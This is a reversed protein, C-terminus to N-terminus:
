DPSINLSRVIIPSTVFYGLVPENGEKSKINSPPNQPPPSFLGGDNFLLNVLERMYDYAPQNLRYMELRVRDGKKFAFDNLTLGNKLLNTGFRDDFLLYDTRRNLLTDNRVMKIRYFNDEQFPIKGFLTLYYGEERFFRDDRFAYKISDIVPPALIKGSSIFTKGELKVQLEYDQGVIGYQNNIPLYKKFQPSFKFNVIRGSQSNKISIEANPYPDESISDYFSNSYGIQVFNFGPHNTWQAEIVPIRKSNKLDLFVEEQCASFFLLIGIGLLLTKM